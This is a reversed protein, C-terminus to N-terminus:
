IDITQIPNIPQYRDDCVAANVSIHRGGRGGRGGRLVKGGDRHMHGFIHLKLQDLEEVRRALHVCGQSGDQITGDLTGYPPGHTILVEVDDPIAAWKARLEPGGRPLNFAWDHFEPQWPAGYFKVGDIELGSDELYVADLVENLMVDRMYHDHAFTLEHNGAIVIKHRHPERRLWRFFDRVEHLGGRYTFDGAAVLVDGDPIVLNDHKTHTDSIAVIRM